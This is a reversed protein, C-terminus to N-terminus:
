AANLQYILGIFSGRTVIAKQTQVISNLYLFVHNYNVAIYNCSFPGQNVTCISMMIMIMITIMMMMMSMMKMIMIMIMIMRIMMMMTMITMMMMTKITMMMM